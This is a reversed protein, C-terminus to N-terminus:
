KLQTGETNVSIKRRGRFKGPIGIRALSTRIRRGKKYGNDYDTKQVTCLDRTMLDFRGVM